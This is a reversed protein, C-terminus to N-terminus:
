WAKGPHTRSNCGATLRCDRRVTTKFHTGGRSAKSGRGTNGVEHRATRGPQRSVLGHKEPLVSVDAPVFVPQDSKWFDALVKRAQEVTSKSAAISVRLFGLESLPCVALTKGKAWKTVKAHDAHTETLLAVLASVDLLYNM